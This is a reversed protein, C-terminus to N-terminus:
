PNNKKKAQVQDIEFSTHNNLSALEGLFLYLIEVMQQQDNYGERYYNKIAKIYLHTKHNHSYLKEFVRFDFGADRLPTM